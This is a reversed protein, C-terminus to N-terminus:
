VPFCLGRAVHLFWSALAEICVVDISIRESVTIYLKGGTYESTLRNHLIDDEISSVEENYNASKMIFLAGQVAWAVFLVLDLM